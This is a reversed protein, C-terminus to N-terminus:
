RAKFSAKRKSMFATTGETFDETILVNDELLMELELGENLSREMGQVMAQKAARVALPSPECLVNAMQVASSMVEAPPVVKNILGIRLAEQADISKGTLLMEAAKAMGIARPLRQTGGWGPILGLRVEPVGFVAKESAIRIDCTLALELGGGLAAGNIAAVMPKWIEIGRMPTPTAKWPQGREAKLKPLTTAIDAGACFAREGSGTVIAVWLNDDDRFEKMVKGLEDVSTPDLANLAEPRNLTITAIRGDKKLEIAM